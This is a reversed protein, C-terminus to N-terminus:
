WYAAIVFTIYIYKSALGKELGKELQM